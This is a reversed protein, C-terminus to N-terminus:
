TATEDDEATAEPHDSAIATDTVATRQRRRSTESVATVALRVAAELSDADLRSLPVWVADAPQDHLLHDAAIALRETEVDGWPTGSPLTEATQLVHALWAGVEAARPFIGLTEVVAYPTVLLLKCPSSPRRPLPCVVVYRFEGLPRAHRFSGAHLATLEDLHQRVRAATEFALGAAADRMRQRTQEFVPEPWRFVELAFRVMHRYGDMSISGDCPAPCRGMDKYPCPKGRPALALEAPYRCLEFASDLRAMLDGAAAPTALPGLVVGPLNALTAVDTTRTWRPPTAEPDLHIWSSPRLRVWDRYRDPFVTRAANWYTLDAELGTEVRRYHVCAVVGRYDVKKSRTSPEPPTLRRQVAARINGAVLLQVPRDDRDALLLVGRTTPLHRLLAAPPQPSPDPPLALKGDFCPWPSPEAAPDAPRDRDSADTSTPPM